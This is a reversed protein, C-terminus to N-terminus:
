QAIGDHVENVEGVDGEWVGVARSTSGVGALGVWRTVGDMFVSVCGPRAAAEGLGRTPVCTAKWFGKKGSM